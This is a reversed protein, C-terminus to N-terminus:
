KNPSHELVLAMTPELLLSTFIVWEGKGETTLPSMKLSIEPLLHARPLRSTEDKRVCGCGGRGLALDMCQVRGRGTHRVPARPVALTVLTVSSDSQFSPNPSCSPVAPEGM